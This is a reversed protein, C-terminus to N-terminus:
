PCHGVEVGFQLLEYGLEGIEHSLVELVAKQFNKIESEDTLVVNIVRTDLFTNKDSFDIDVRGAEFYELREYLDKKANFQNIKNHVEDIEDIKL